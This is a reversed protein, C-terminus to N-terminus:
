GFRDRTRFEGDFDIGDDCSEPLFRIPGAQRWLSDACQRSHPRHANIRQCQLAVSRIDKCSSIGYSSWLTNNFSNCVPSLCGYGYISIAPTLIEAQISIDLQLGDRIRLSLLIIGGSASLHRAEFRLRTDLVEFFNLLSKRLFHNM